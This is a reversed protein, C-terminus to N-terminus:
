DRKSSRVADVSLVTNDGALNHPALDPKKEKLPAAGEGEDQELTITFQAGCPLAYVFPTTDTLIAGGSPCGARVSRPRDSAQPKKRSKLFGLAEKNTPVVDGLGAVWKLLSTFTECRIKSVQGNRHSKVVLNNLAPYSVAWPIKIILNNNMLSCDPSTWLSHIFKGPQGPLTEGCKCSVNIDSGSPSIFKVLERLLKRNSKCKLISASIFLNLDKRRDEIMKKSRNTAKFLHRGPFKMEGGFHHKVTKMLKRYQSYRKCVKWKTEEGSADKIVSELVFGVVCKNTDSEGSGYSVVASTVAANKIKLGKVGSEGLHDTENLAVM